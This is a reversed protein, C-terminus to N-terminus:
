ASIRGVIPYEPEPAADAITYLSRLRMVGALAEDLTRAHVRGIEEGKEIWSGLPRLRDFGVRHDIAQDPRTRGGGLEIMAMGIGRTNCATLYGAEDLTVPLIIPAKVLTSGPEDVLNGPGGLLFVMRSFAEAARGDSLAREARAYATAVDPEIGAAALMEGALALVVRELRTGAKEGKLFAICNEIEVVNGVADALPQSMDTILATTRLGAGDAVEVLARALREADPRSTMFAGNGLKVDLVLSQ